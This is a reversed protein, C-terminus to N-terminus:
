VTFIFRYFSTKKLLELFLSPLNGDIFWYNITNSITTPDHLLDRQALFLCFLFLAYLSLFICFSLAATKNKSFRNLFFGLGICYIPFFMVFFRNGFSWAGFWSAWAGYVILNLLFFSFLLNKRKDKSFWLAVM